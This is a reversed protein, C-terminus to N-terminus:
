ASRKKWSSYLEATVEHIGAEEPPILGRELVRKVPKFSKRHIPCVGHANLAELHQETGYGVNSEFGYAPYLVAQEKMWSDRLHKAIIAAAMVCPVHADANPMVIWDAAIPDPPRRGGDLFVRAGPAFTMARRGAEVWAQSLSKGLHLEDIEAPSRTSISWQVRPDATLLDHMQEIKAKDLEKSDRLGSILWSSDVTVACVFFPGAWAGTGVEDIGIVKKEAM